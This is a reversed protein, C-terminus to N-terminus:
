RGGRRLRENILFLAQYLPVTRRDEYFYFDELRAKYV